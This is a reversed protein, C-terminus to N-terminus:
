ISEDLIYKKRWMQLLRGAIDLDRSRKVSDSGYVSRDLYKEILLDIYRYLEFDSM